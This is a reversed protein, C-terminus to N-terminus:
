FAITPYLTSFGLPAWVLATPSKLASLGHTLYFALGKLPHMGLYSLPRCLVGALPRGQAADPLAPHGEEASPRAGHHSKQTLSFSCALM